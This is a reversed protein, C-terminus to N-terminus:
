QTLRRRRMTVVAAACLLMAFALLAYTGLTPVTQRAAPAVLPTLDGAATVTYCADTGGVLGSLTLSGSDPIVGSVLLVWDDPDVSCNTNYFDFQCGASGSVVIPGGVSTSVNISECVFSPGLLEIFRASVGSIKTEVLNGGRDIEHVGDGNTTLINGNGLEYAGRFQTMGGTYLGIRTGGPTYEAVGAQGGIFNAVLVNGNDIEIVQEPTDNDNSFDGLSNGSGDYRHVADSSFGTVLNDSSRQYIDFPSNLGGAGIPIYNGIFNGAADFEVISDDNVGGGIAILLTDDTSVAIGRVNDIVGNGPGGAFTGLFTGDMDYIRVADDIQDSVLITNPAIGAIANIPTSLNDPDAPIFDPDVLDGTVRDFAMVRDNTSEPILLLGSTGLLELARARAAPDRVPLPGPRPEESGAEEIDRLTLTETEEKEEGEQAVMPLITLSIGCILICIKWLDTGILRM